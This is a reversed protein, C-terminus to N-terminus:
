ATSNTRLAEIALLVNSLIVATRTENLFKLFVRLPSSPPWCFCFGLSTFSSFNLVAVISLTNFKGLTSRVHLSISLGCVV